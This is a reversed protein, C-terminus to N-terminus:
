RSLQRYLQRSTPRNIYNNRRQEDGASRPKQQLRDTTILALNHHVAQCHRRRWSSDRDGRPPIPRCPFLSKRGRTTRVEGSVKVRIAEGTGTVEFIM